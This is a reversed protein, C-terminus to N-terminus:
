NASKNSIYLEILYIPLADTSYTINNRCVVSIGNGYVGGNVFATPLVSHKLSTFAKKGTNVMIKLVCVAFCRDSTVGCKSVMAKVILSVVTSPKM